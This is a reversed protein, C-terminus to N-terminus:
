CPQAGQPAPNTKYHAVVALAAEVSNVVHVAAKWGARWKEQDPTLQQKSPPKAGDKVEILFVHGNVACLLDPCGMGVAHLHQVTCGAKRLAQVIEPQNADAKRAFSM